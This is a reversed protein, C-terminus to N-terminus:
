REPRDAVDLTQVIQVIMPGLEDARGPAHYFHTVLICGRWVEACRVVEIRDWVVERQGPGVLRTRDGPRVADAYRQVWVLGRATARFEVSVDTYGDHGSLDNRRAYDRLPDPDAAPVAVPVLEVTVYFLRDGAATEVGAETAARQRTYRARHGTPLTMRVTIGGPHGPPPPPEFAAYGVTEPPQRGARDRLALATVAAVGFVAVFLVGHAPHTQGNRM